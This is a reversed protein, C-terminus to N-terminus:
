KLLALAQDARAIDVNGICVGPGRSPEFAVRCRKRKGPLLTGLAYEVAVGALVILLGTGLLSPSASRAGDVFLSVGFFSGLALAVLGTYFSLRPYRVERMARKLTKQTIVYERERLTRGLMETKTTIRIVGGSFTAEAPRKYALALKAFGRAVQMVFLIGTLALITTAVPGRPTGVMEGEIRATQGSGAPEAPALLARIGPHTCQARLRDTLVRASPHGSALLTTVACLTESLGDQPRALAREARSHVATLFDGVLDGLARDALATADFATHAALWLMDSAARDEEAASSLKSEALVHAYLASALARESQDEPGRELITLANGFPTKADDTEVKAEAALERTREANTVDLRRAEAAGGVITRAIGVIASLKDLGALADFAARAMEHEGSPTPFSTKTEEM